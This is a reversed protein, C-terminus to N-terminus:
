ERYDDYVEITYEPAEFPAEIIIGNKGEAVLTLLDELSQIEVVWYKGNYSARWVPPTFFDASTRTIRFKM